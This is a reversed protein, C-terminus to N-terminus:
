VRELNELEDNDGVQCELYHHGGNCQVFLGDADEQVVRIAGKGLCGWHFTPSIKDGPKLDSLKM